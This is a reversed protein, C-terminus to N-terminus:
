RLIVLKELKEAYHGDQSRVRVKYIYVGRGIRDGFDDQGNWFIPESHYGDTMVFEDITKILRGSVTFIQVQVELMASPQNHDFYFATSTTFPNPYNLVHDIALEASEAVVFETYAESSNNHVDWLKLTLTHAGESLQSFPYRIVGSTYSDVDSEYYDNIIVSKNHDSDLTSVIDHGIGTGVTNIGSSDNVYALLVPNEDTIGGFAFNEDNLYLQIEPGNNDVPVSNDYGGIIIDKYFGSADTEANNAYYSIKGYGYNYAIDKPVIFQFSFEGNTIQAKGKFLIALLLDFTFPNSDPDTVLTEVKTPKDYVTPRLIGNYSDMFVGNEDVVIGSVSVKKLAKLTDGAEHISIDNIKITNVTHEPYALRLAPDGLLIFKKDNDGIGGSQNKAKRILDGFRPYEGDVKEFMYDYMANNLEFNPSGYTARATTFLSVAGGYPNLLVLEGASVRTPDDYRSFECTATIFVPLRDFNSWANIDSIGLIREHAWGAEGGHGTYNMVLSGKDMRRNIAQNVLPARQGGSTSIQPYADLYIKDVNLNGYATDLRHAMKEAHTQMHMNGDEDDAVFCVVNRWSGFVDEGGNAYHIFKDVMQRASEITSVVVRGIGVDLLNASGGGGENDDLFGYFDDTAISSVINMSRKDEWTPVFNTNNEVRSKYDYSADGFLILYRCEDGLPAEDYLMKMFDRIATIDQAGSSYENYVKEVDVVFVNMNDFDRHHNALRTAEGLFSAHSIIVLDPAPLAHLNQNEVKGVFVASYFSSGNFSVFENLTDAPLRFKMVSGEMSTGVRMVNLPDTVNWVINSTSANSLMYEAINGTGTSQPDRFAIQGNSFRLNRRANLAIYDMWGISGSLPRSYTVKLTFGQSGVTFETESVATKAYEDTSFNVALVTLTEVLNNNNLYYKFNSPTASRAAVRTKMKVPVAADIDPFNFSYEASTQIEYSPSEFWDRGTRVINLDDKEIFKYDSFKDVTQNAPESVSAQETIRKGTGLDATIFYYSHDSYINKKHNFKETIVNWTWTDPSEGYFIIYDGQDFSGDSEGSVYIANEMLDDYRPEDCPEPLMKGAHGYIRINRPDLSSIKVGMSSLDDYSIKYIGTQQVAIKYWEGSALVSNQRYVRAPARYASAAESLKILLTFSVLKQYTGTANNRRLPVFSIAAFAQKREIAVSTTVEIKDNILGYGELSTIDADMDEWVPDTILAEVTTNQSGIAFREKYVPLSATALDYRAGSFSLEFVSRTDTIRIRTLPDWVISRNLPGIDAVSLLPFFFLFVLLYFFSRKLM